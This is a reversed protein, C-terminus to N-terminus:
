RALLFRNRGAQALSLGVFGTKLLYLLPPRVSTTRYSSSLDLVQMNLPKIKFPGM